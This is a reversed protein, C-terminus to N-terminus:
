NQRHRCDKANFGFKCIEMHIQFLKLLLIASDSARFNSIEYINTLISRLHLNIKFTAKVCFLFNLNQVHEFNEVLNTWIQEM